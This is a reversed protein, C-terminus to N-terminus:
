RNKYDYNTVYVYHVFYMAATSLAQRLEEYLMSATNNQSKQLGSAFIVESSFFRTLKHNLKVIVNPYANKSREHPKEPEDAPTRMLESASVIAYWQDGGVGKFSRIFDRVFRAVSDTLVDEIAASGEVGTTHISERRRRYNRPKDIVGAKYSLQVLEKLAKQGREIAKKAREVGSEVKDIFAKVDHARKVPVEATWRRATAPSM